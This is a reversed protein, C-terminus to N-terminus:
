VTVWGPLKLFYPGAVNEYGVIIVVSSMEHQVAEYLSWKPKNLKRSGLAELM